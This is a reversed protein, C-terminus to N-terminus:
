VPVNLTFGAFAGAPLKKGNQEELFMEGNESRINGGFVSKLIRELLLGSFGPTHCSLLLFFPNETDACAACLEVFRYIDNEIKWVQGQKGRGFSPPDLVIGNYKRGRKIERKMFKEADDCIWRINSPIGPNLKLNESAWEIMGKSADVHTVKAGARAMALSPVGSYAFLNLIEPEKFPASSIANELWDFHMNHEPFFGLHGFDTAKIKIRIGQTEIIWNDPIKKKWTWSGGGGSNRTFIGHVKEWEGQPMNQPWFANLCPRALRINGVDELKM